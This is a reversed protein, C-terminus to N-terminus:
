SGYESMAYVNAMPHHLMCHATVFSTHCDGPEDYAEVLLLGSVWFYKVEQM